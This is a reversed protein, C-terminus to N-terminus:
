NQIRTTLTGDVVVNAGTVFSACPSSLFVVVRAVEEPAAMRGLPNDAVARAFGQSDTRRVEDWYGGPFLTTGPSVINARIGKPAVHRALSKMYFFLAAKMTGYSVSEYGYDQSGSVSSIAVVSAADSQELFPMAAEVANHTHLLDVRYAADFDSVGSGSAMASTNAVLGDLRGMHQVADFILGKLAAGDAVDTARGFARVGFCELAAVTEEVHAATRACISVDAGEAAFGEAISRGIGRTGGTILFHRSKIKLDM